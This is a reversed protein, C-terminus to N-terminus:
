EKWIETDAQEDDKQKNKETDIEEETMENEKGV